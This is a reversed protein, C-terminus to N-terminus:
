AGPRLPRSALARLMSSPVQLDHEAADPMGSLWGAEGAQAPLSQVAERVRQMVRRGSDQHTTLGGAYYLEALRRVLVAEDMDIRQGLQALNAPEAALALMIRRHDLELCQLPLHPVRRLYITRDRYRRPLLDRRTRTAYVWMVQLLSLRLFGSPIDKAMAPRRMWQAQSLDVPRATSLMGCQWHASDIVAILRGDHLLHIVEGHLDALRGVLQEGLAFQARLPRLWAEFRHLRQRLGQQDAADFAEDSALGEPLPLVFALPRDVEARNLSLWENGHVPHHIRLVDRGPVDLAPGNILWADAQHPDGVLWRPWGDVSSEVCQRLWQAPEPEFGLLGLRLLPQEM